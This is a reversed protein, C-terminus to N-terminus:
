KPTQVPPPTILFKEIHIKTVSLSKFSLDITLGSDKSMRLAWEGSGDNARFWRNPRGLDVEKSTNMLKGLLQDFEAQTVTRVDDTAGLFVSGIAKGGPMIISSPSEAGAAGL